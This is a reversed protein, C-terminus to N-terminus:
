RTIKLVYWLTVYVASISYRLFYPVSEPLDFINLDLWFVFLECKLFNLFHCRLSKLNYIPLSSWFCLNSTDIFVPLCFIGKRSVFEVLDGLLKRLNWRVSGGVSFIPFKQLKFEEFSPDRVFKAGVGNIGHHRYGTRVIYLSIKLNKQFSAGIKSSIHKPVWGM